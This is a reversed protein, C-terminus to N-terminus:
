PYNAASAVTGYEQFLKELEAETAAYSINGVYINMRNEKM